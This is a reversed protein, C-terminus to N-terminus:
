KKFRKRFIGIHTKQKENINKTIYIKDDSMYAVPQQNSYLWVYSTQNDKIITFNRSDYIIDINM